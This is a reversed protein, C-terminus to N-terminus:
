GAFRKKLDARITQGALHADVQAYGERKLATRIDDITSASRALEFAREIVNTPNM